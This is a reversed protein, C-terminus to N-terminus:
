FCIKKQDDSQGWLARKGDYKAKLATPSCHLYRQCFRYFALYSKFGFTRILEDNDYIGSRVAREIDAAKQKVLWTHYPERFTERFRRIFSSESMHGMRALEALNEARLYSCQVFTRFDDKPRAIDRFFGKLKADGYFHRMMLFLEHEKIVHYCPLHPGEPDLAPGLGDFFTELAPVVPLIPSGTVSTEKMMIEALMDHRCLTIRNNFVLTVVVSDRLASVETEQKRALFICQLETLQHCDNRGIRIHLHGSLLFLIRHSRCEAHPLLHAEPLLMRTFRTDLHEKEASCSTCGAPCNVARFTEGAHATAKVQHKM